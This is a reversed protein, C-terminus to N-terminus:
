LGIIKVNRQLRLPFNPASSQSTRGLLGENELFGRCGWQRSKMLIGELM